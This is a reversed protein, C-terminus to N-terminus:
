HGNSCAVASAGLAQLEEAARALTKFEQCGTEPNHLANKALEMARDGRRHMKRSVAAKIEDITRM